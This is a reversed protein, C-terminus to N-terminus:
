CKKPENSQPQVRQFLVILVFHNQLQNKRKQPSNTGNSIFNLDYFNCTFKNQKFVQKKTVNLSTLVNSKKTEFMM